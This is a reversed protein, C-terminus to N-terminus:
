FCLPVSLYNPSSVISSTVDYNMVYAGVGNTAQQQPGVVLEPLMHYCFGPAHNNIKFLRLIRSYM